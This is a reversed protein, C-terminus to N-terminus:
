LMDYVQVLLFEATVSISSRKAVISMSRFNPPPSSHGKEHALIQNKLYCLGVETTDQDMWGNTWLRCPGLGVETGLPM